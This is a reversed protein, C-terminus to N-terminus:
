KEVTSLIRKLKHVFYQKCLNNQFYKRKSLSKWNNPNEDVKLDIAYTSQQQADSLINHIRVFCCYKREHLKIEIKSKKPIFKSRRWDHINYKGILIKIRKFHLKWLSVIYSLLDTSTLLPWIGLFIINDFQFYFSISLVKVLTNQLDNWRVVLKGRIKRFM